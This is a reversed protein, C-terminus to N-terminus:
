SPSLAAGDTLFSKRPEKGLGNPPAAAAQEPEARINGLARGAGDPGRDQHNRGQQQQQQAREPSSERSGFVADFPDEVKEQPVPALPQPRPAKNGSYAGRGSVSPRMDDEDSGEDM